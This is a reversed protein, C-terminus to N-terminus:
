DRVHVCCSTAPRLSYGQIATGTGHQAITAKTAPGTLTAQAALRQCFFTMVYHKPFEGEALGVLAVASFSLGQCRPASLVQVAPEYGRTEPLYTAARTAARLEDLFAPYGLLEAGLTAEAEVLARLIDKLALLAGRDRSARLPDQVILRAIGLSNQEMPTEAEDGILNEFWGVWDRYSAMVPPALREVMREFRESIQRANTFPPRQTDDLDDDFSATNERTEGQSAM